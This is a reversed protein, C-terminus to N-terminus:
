VGDRYREMLQVYNNAPRRILELDADTLPRRPKAPSGMM